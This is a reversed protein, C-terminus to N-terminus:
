VHKLGSTHTFSHLYTGEGTQRATCSPFPLRSSLDFPPRCLPLCVPLCAPLHIHALMKFIFVLFCVSLCVSLCVSPCFLRLVPLCAPMSLVGGGGRRHIFPTTSTAQRCGGTVRALYWEWGDM